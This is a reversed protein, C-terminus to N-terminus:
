ENNMEGLLKNIMKMYYYKGFPFPVAFFYLSSSLVEARCEASSRLYKSYYISNKACEYKTILYSYRSKDADLEMFFRGVAIGIPFLLFLYVVAALPLGLLPHIYFGLVRFQWTHRAEHPLIDEVNWVNWEKPYFHLNGFTTAAHVLYEDRKFKGFSIVFLLWAVAHSFWNDKTYLRISKDFTRAVEELRSRQTTWSEKSM